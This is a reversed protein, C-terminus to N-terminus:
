KTQKDTAKALTNNKNKIEEYFDERTGQRRMTLYGNPPMTISEQNLSPLSGVSAYPNSTLTGPADVAFAYPAEMYNNSLVSLRSLRKAKRFCHMLFKSFVSFLKYFDFVPRIRNLYQKDNLFIKRNLSLLSAKGM